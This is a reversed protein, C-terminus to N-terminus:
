TSESLTLSTGIERPEEQIHFNECDQAEYDKQNKDKLAQLVAQEKELKEQLKKIKVEVLQAEKKCAYEQAKEKKKRRKKAKTDHIAPDRRNRKLYSDFLERRPM